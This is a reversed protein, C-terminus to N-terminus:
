SRVAALQAARKHWARGAAFFSSSYLPAADVSVPTYARLTSVGATTVLRNPERRQRSEILTHALQGHTPVHESRIEKRKMKPECKGPNQSGGGSAYKTNEVRRGGCRSPAVTIRYLAM